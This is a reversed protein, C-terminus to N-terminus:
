DKSVYTDRSDVGLRGMAKSMTVEYGHLYRSLVSMRLRSELLPKNTAVAVALSPRHLARWFGGMGVLVLREELM